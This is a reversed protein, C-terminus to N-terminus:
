VVRIARGLQRESPDGSTGKRQCPAALLAWVGMIRLRAPSPVLKHWPHHLVLKVAALTLAPSWLPYLFAHATRDAEALTPIAAVAAARSIAAVRGGSGVPFLTLAEGILRLAEPCQAPSAGDTSRISRAGDTSTDSDVGLMPGNAHYPWAPGALVERLFRRFRKKLRGQPTANRLPRLLGAKKGFMWATAEANENKGLRGSSLWTLRSAQALASAADSNLAQCALEHLLPGTGLPEVRVLSINKLDEVERVAKEVKAVVGGTGFVVVPSPVQASLLLAKVATRVDADTVRGGPLARLTLSRQEAKKKVTEPKQDTVVVVIVQGSRRGALRARDIVGRARDLQGELLGSGGEAIDELGGTDEPWYNSPRTAVRLLERVANTSWHPMRLIPRLAKVGIPSGPETPWELTVDGPVGTADHWRSALAHAGLAALYHAPNLPNLGNLPIARM